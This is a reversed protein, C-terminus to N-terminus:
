RKDSGSHSGIMMVGVGVIAVGGIIAITRMNKKRNEYVRTAYQILLDPDNIHAVQIDVKADPNGQNYIAEMLQDFKRQGPPLLGGSIYDIVDLDSEFLINQPDMFTTGMKM